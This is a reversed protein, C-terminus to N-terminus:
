APMVRASADRAYASIAGLGEQEPYASVVDSFFSRMEELAIEETCREREAAGARARANLWPAEEHTMRSLITGGYRSFATWVGGILSEELESFCSSEHLNLRGDGYVGELGEYKFAKWLGPYVPGAAWAQPADSILPERLYVMSFGHAYYVLKELERAGINGESLVCFMSAVELVREFGPDEASIIQQVAKKSQRYTRKSLVERNRELLADFAIPDAYLNEIVESYKRSPVHGEVFRSYTLEGWGLLRSLPRKGMNYKKPLDRVVSLPVIGRSRRLAEGFAQAAEEEYPEYAVEEGCEACFAGRAEYDILEGDIETQQHSLRTEFEVERGCRPCYARPTNQMDAM